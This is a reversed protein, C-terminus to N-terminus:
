IVVTRLHVRTGPWSRCVRFGGGRVVVRGRLAPRLMVVPVLVWSWPCLVAGYVVVGRLPPREQLFLTRIFNFVPTAEETLTFFPACLSCLGRDLDGVLGILIYMPEFKETLSQWHNWKSRSMLFLSAPPTTWVSNWENLFICFM